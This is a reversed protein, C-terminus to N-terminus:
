NAQVYKKLLELPLITLLYYEYDNSDYEYDYNWDSTVTILGKEPLPELYEAYSGFYKYIRRCEEATEFKYINDIIKRETDLWEETKHDYECDNCEHENIKNICNNCKYNNSDIYKILSNCEHCKFEFTNIQNESMLLITYNQYKENMSEVYEKLHIDYYHGNADVVVSEHNVDIYKITYLKM